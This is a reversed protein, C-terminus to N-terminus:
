KMSKNVQKFLFMALRILIIIQIILGAWFAITTIAMIYPDALGLLAQMSLTMPGFWLFLVFLGLVPISSLVLIGILTISYGAYAAGMFPGAVGTGIVFNFLGIVLTLVILGILLSPIVSMNWCRKKNGEKDITCIEGHIKLANM